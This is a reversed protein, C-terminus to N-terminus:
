KIHKGKWKWYGVKVDITYEDVTGDGSTRKVDLFATGDGNFTIQVDRTFNYKPTTAEFHSTAPGQLYFHNKDGDKVLTDNVFTITFSHNFTRDGNKTTHFVETGNRSFTGNVLPTGSIINTVNWEGSADADIDIRDGVDRSRARTFSVYIADTGGHQFNKMFNGAADRYIYTYTISDSFQYKGSNKSRYVTIVHKGTASDYSASRSMPNAKGPEVGNIDNGNVLNQVDAFNNGAGGSETGLSAATVDAAAESDYEQNSDPETTSKCGVVLAGIMLAFALTFAKVFTMSLKNM